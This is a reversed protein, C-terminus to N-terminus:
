FMYNTGVGFFFMNRFGGDINLYVQENVKVRFGVLLNVIPVVPPVDAEDRTAGTAIPCQDVNDLDDLTTGAPCMTDTQYVKGLVLGIGLGAGYRLQVREHLNAHWIFAVDLGLLALGDFETLDPYQGDASPNEGKEQYLGDPPSVNEYEVGVVIDFNGKRRVFEGGIGFSTMTTSHDVFLNILFQPITVYRLRLGVGMKTRAEPEIEEEVMAAGAEPTTATPTESGMEEEEPSLGPEEEQAFARGATAPLALLSCFAILISRKVLGLRQM